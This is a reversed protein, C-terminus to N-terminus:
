GQMRKPLGRHKKTGDCIINVKTVQALHHRGSNEVIFNRKKKQLLYNTHLYKLLRYIYWEKNSEWTSPKADM